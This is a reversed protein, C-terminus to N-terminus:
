SRRGQEFSARELLADANTIMRDRNHGLAWSLHHDLHIKIGASRLQKFFYHDEGAMRIQGPIPEFAFLPWFNARGEAVAWAHLTHFVTMDVLCLGLGLQSVETIEGRAALDETTWVLAGDLDTATPYTPYTRRPYNTGVVPLNLSLLRMLATPPFNHDSDLWLLYNAEWALADRVLENRLTALVSSSKMFIEIEPTVVQGNFMVQTQVTHMVLKALCYAYDGHVQGHYPTCIAIKM